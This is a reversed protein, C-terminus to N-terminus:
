LLADRFRSSIWEAALGAKAKAQIQEFVARHRVYNDESLSVLKRYRLVDSYARIVELATNESTELLEM